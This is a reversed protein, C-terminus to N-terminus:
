VYSSGNTEQTGRIRANVIVNNITCVSFVTVVKNWELKFGESAFVRLIGDRRFQSGLFDLINVKEQIHEVLYEVCINRYGVQADM